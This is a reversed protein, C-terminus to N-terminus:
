ARGILAHIEENQFTCMLFKYGCKTRCGLIERLSKFSAIVKHSLSHNQFTYPNFGCKTQCRIIEKLSKFSLIIKLSLSLSIYLSEKSTSLPRTLKRTTTSFPIHLNLFMIDLMAKEQFIFTM